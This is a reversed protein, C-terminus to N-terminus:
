FGESFLVNFVGLVSGHRPAIEGGFASLCILVNVWNGGGRRIIVDRSIVIKRARFEIAHPCHGAIGVVAPVCETVKLLLQVNVIGAPTVEM